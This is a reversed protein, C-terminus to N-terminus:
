CQHHYQSSQLVFHIDSVFSAAKSAHLHSRAFEFAGGSLQISSDSPWVFVEVVALRNSQAVTITWTSVLRQLHPVRRITLIFGELSLVKCCTGFHYVLISWNM